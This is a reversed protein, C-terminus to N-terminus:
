IMYSIKPYRPKLHPARTCGYRLPQPLAGPSAWAKAVLQYVLVRFLCACRRGISLGPNRPRHARGPVAPMQATHWHGTVTLIPQSDAPGRDSDRDCIKSGVRLCQWHVSVPTLRSGRAASESESARHSPCRGEPQRAPGAAPADSPELRSGRPLSIGPTARTTHGYGRPQNIFQSPFGWTKARRGRGVRVRLLSLFPRRGSRTTV